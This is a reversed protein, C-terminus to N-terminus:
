ALGSPTFVSPFHRKRDSNATVANAHFPQSFNFFVMFFSQGEVPPSVLLQMVNGYTSLVLYRTAMIRNANTIHGM